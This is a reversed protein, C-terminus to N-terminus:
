EPKGERAQYLREYYNAIYERTEEPEELRTGEETITDYTNQSKNNVIRKRLKWFMQSKTGGNQILRNAVDRTKEKISTELEEKIEKQINIYKRLKETKDEGGKRISKKVEKRLKTKEQRLKKVEEPTPTSIAEMHHTPTVSSSYRHPPSRFLM